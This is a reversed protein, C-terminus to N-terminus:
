KVCFDLDAKETKGLECSWFNKSHEASWLIAKFYDLKKMIHLVQM